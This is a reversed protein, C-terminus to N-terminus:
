RRDASSGTLVGQAEGDDAETVVRTGSLLDHWGRGQGDMLMWLFGLGLPLAALGYGLTHRLLSRGWSLPRGDARVIQIGVLAMGVSQGRVSCLIFHNVLLVLCAALASWMALEALLLRGRLAVAGMVTVGMAALLVMLDLFFAVLRVVLPAPVRRSVRPPPEAEQWPM